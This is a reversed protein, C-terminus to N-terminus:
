NLQKEKKQEEKNRKGVCCVYVYWFISYIFFTDQFLDFSETEINWLTVSTQTFM